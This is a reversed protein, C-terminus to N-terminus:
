QIPLDSFIGRCLGEPVDHSHGPAKRPEKAIVVRREAHYHVRMEAIRPDFREEGSQPRIETQRRGSEREGVPCHHQLTEELLAREVTLAAKLSERVRHHLRQLCVAALKEEAGLNAADEDLAPMHSADHDFVALADLRGDDDGVSVSALGELLQYALLLERTPEHVGMWPIVGDKDAKTM